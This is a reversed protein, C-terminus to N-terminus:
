QLRVRQYLDAATFAHTNCIVLFSITFIHRSRGSCGARRGTQKGAGCISQILFKITARGKERAHADSNSNGLGLCKKELVVVYIELDLEEVMPWASDYLVATTAKATRRAAAALPIVRVDLELVTRLFPSFSSLFIFVPLCVSFRQVICYDERM